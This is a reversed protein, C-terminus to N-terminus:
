KILCWLMTLYREGNYEIVVRRRALFKVVNVVSGVPMPSGLMRTWKDGKFIRTM